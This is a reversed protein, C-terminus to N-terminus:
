DGSPAVLLSYVMVLMILGWGLKYLLAIRGDQTADKKSDSVVRISQM